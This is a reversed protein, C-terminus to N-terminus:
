EPPRVWQLPNVLRDDIELEFHLHASSCKGTEGQRGILQGRHVYDGEHVFSEGLHGYRSKSGDSHLIEVYGGLVPHGRYYGDPPPYHTVVLGNDISLIRARWTGYADLGDHFDDGYGGTEGRDREGYPSSLAVYDEEHIPFVYLPVGPEPVRQIVTKTMRVIKPEPAQRRGINLAILFISSIILLLLIKKLVQM